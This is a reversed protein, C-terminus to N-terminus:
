LARRIQLRIVHSKKTYGTEDTGGSFFQEYFSNRQFKLETKAGLVLTAEFAFNGFMGDKSYMAMQAGGTVYFLVKSGIAYPMSVDGGFGIWSPTVKNSGELDALSTSPLQGELALKNFKAFAAGLVELYVSAIIEVQKFDVFRPDRNVNAGFTFLYSSVRHNVGLDINSTYIVKPAGLYVYITESSESEFTVPELVIETPLLKKKGDLDEVQRVETKFKFMRFRSDEGQKGSYSFAVYYEVPDGEVDQKIYAGAGFTTTPGPTRFGQPGEAAAKKLDLILKRELDKQPTSSQKKNNKAPQNEINQAFVSLAENYARLMKKTQLILETDSIKPSTEPLDVIANYITQIAPANKQRDNQNRYLDWQLSGLALRVLTYSASADSVSRNLYMLLKSYELGFETYPLEPSQGAQAGKGTFGQDYVGYKIAFEISRKLFRQELIPLEISVLSSEDRLIESIKLARNLIFRIFLEDQKPSSASVIDRLTDLYRSVAAPDSEKVDKLLIDLRRLSNTGWEKIKALKDISIPSSETGEKFVEPSTIKSLEKPQSQVQAFAEPILVLSLSVYFISWIPLACNKRNM